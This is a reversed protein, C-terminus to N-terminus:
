LKPSPSVLKTESFYWICRCDGMLWDWHVLGSLQYAGTMSDNTTGGRPKDYFTNEQMKERKNLPM